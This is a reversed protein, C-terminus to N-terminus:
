RAGLARLYPLGDMYQVDFFGRSAGWKAWPLEDGRVWVVSRGPERLWRRQKRCWASRALPGWAPVVNELLATLAARLPKATM